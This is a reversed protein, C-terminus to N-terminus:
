KPLYNVEAEVVPKVSKTQNDDQNPDAFVISLLTLLAILIIALIRKKM